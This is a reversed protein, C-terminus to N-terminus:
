RSLGFSALPEYSAGGPSLRSEYLAFETVEWPGAALTGNAALWGGVPGGARNLRALTVHPRFGRRDPEVGGRRCATVVRRHLAALAESRAVGAWLASPVGKREFHGVGRIEAAFPPSRIAALAGVVDEAAPLDVEGLFALTLHLQDDDQWRAGDIGAMSDLLTERVPAPPSIAVFLRPM